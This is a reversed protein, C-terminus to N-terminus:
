GTISATYRRLGGLFLQYFQYSSVGLRRCIGRVTIFEGRARLERVVELIREKVGDSGGTLVGIRV